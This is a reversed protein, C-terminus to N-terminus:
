DPLKKTHVTKPLTYPSCTNYRVYQIYSVFNNEELILVLIACFLVSADSGNILIDQTGAMQYM